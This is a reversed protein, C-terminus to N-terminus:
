DTESRVPLDTFLIFVHFFTYPEVNSIQIGQFRFPHVGTHNMMVAMTHGTIIHTRLLDTSSHLDSVEENNHEQLAELKDLGGLEEIAECVADKVGHKTAAVMINNIADLVVLTTRAEKATLLNILPGLVGIEVVYGTQQPTGGSTLNTVVWAAEKQSKFDGKDLIEIVSPM